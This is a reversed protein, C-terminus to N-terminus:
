KKGGNRLEDVKLRVCQFLRPNNVHYIYLFLTHLKVCSISVPIWTYLFFVRIQEIMCCLPILKVNWFTLILIEGSTYYMTSHFQVVFWHLFICCLFCCIVFVHRVNYWKCIIHHYLVIFVLVLSACAAQFLSINQHHIFLYTLFVITRVLGISTLRAQSIASRVDWESSM